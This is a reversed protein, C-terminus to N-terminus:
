YFFIHSKFPGLEVYLGTHFVEESDRIYKKDNLEDKIEFQESLHRVDLKIRGHSISNSLNVVVLCNRSSHNWNWALLNEFSNNGDWSSFVNLMEFNGFEFIEDNTITLLKNYFIQHNKLPSEKPEKGLQVPLKIHKGSFQGDYYFKLGKITSILVAAAQSKEKGLSEVAREEDHNEIFRVSKKQYDDEAKLHAYISKPTGDKLRDLLKKDYTFNFGLQQLTWELDWYAEAIFLFDNNIKKIEEIAIQWFEVQPLSYKKYEVVGRWTNQFVNNLILMAMDCRVGDCFTSIRKLIQLMFHVTKTNFYNLQITDTWAPFFPDRGHAFVLNPQFPSKFFTLDDEAICDDCCELFIEPNTKILESDVSFHNPVFDFILKMELNNLKSHLEILDNESGLSPNIVYDCIAFPSGIVDERKWDKLAKSYSHVLGEEFCCKDIVSDCTRWVGMLWIYNIGLKKLEQWYTIPVDALTAKKNASDFQKIWVRTNIEYLKPNNKM